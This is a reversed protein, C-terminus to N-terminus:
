RIPKIEIQSASRRFAVFMGYQDRGVAVEDTPKIKADERSRPYFSRMRSEIKGAFTTREAGALTIGALRAANTIAAGLNRGVKVYKLLVIEQSERPTSPAPRPGPAPRPEPASPRDPQRPPAAPSQEQRRGRAYPDGIHRNMVHFVQSGANGERVARVYGLCALRSLEGHVWNRFRGNLGALGIDVTCGYMHSSTDSVNGIPMCCPRGKVNKGSRLCQNYKVTRTLGTIRLKPPTIGQKSFYDFYAKGFGDLLRKTEPTVVAYSYKHDPDHDGIGAGRENPYFDIDYYQTDTLRVLKGRRVASDLGETSNYRAVKGKKELESRRADEARKGARTADLTKCEQQQPALGQSLRRRARRSPRRAEVRSPPCLADDPNDVSQQGVYDEFGM